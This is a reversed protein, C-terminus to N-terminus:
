VSGPNINIDISSFLQAVVDAFSLLYEQCLDNV